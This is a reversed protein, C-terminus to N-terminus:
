YLQNDISLSILDNNMVFRWLDERKVDKTMKVNRRQHRGETRRYNTQGVGQTNAANTHYLKQPERKNNEEDYKCIRM